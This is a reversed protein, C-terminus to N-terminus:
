LGSVIGINTSRTSSPIVHIVTGPNNKLVELALEDRKAASAGLCNGSILDVIMAEPAAEFQSINVRALRNAWTSVQDLPLAKRDWFRRDLDSPLWPHNGPSKMRRLKVTGKLIKPGSTQQFTGPWDVDLWQRPIVFEDKSIGTENELSYKFVLDKGALSLHGCGRWAKLEKAALYTIGDLTEGLRQGYLEVILGQDDTDGTPVLFIWGSRGKVTDSFPALCAYAYAGGIAVLQEETVSHTRLAKTLSPMKPLLHSPRPIRAPSAM